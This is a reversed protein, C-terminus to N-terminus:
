KFRHMSRWVSVKSIDVNRQRSMLERGITGNGIIEVIIVSQDGTMKQDSDRIAVASGLTISKFVYVFM